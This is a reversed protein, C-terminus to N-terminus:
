QERDHTALGHYIPSQLLMNALKVYNADVDSKKPFAVEAPEKYAGKCLRVRIGEAILQEIDAQSRYLYSQIVIGIAGRLEPQAHIRRVIDLTIQTLALGGHRHPPLEPRTRTSPSTKPSPEGTGGWPRPGTRPSGPQPNLTLGM